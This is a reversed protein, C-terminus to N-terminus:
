MGSCQKCLYQGEHKALQSSPVMSECKDCPDTGEDAETIPEYNGSQWASLERTSIKQFSENVNSRTNPGKPLKLGKSKTGGPNKASMKNSVGYLPEEKDVPWGYCEKVTDRIIRRLESLKIKM